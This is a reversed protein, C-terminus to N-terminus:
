QIRIYIPLRFLLLLLPLWLCRGNDLLLALLPSRTSMEGVADNFIVPGGVDEEEGAAPRLKSMGRRSVVPERSEVEM